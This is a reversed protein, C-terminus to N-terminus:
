FAGTPAGPDHVDQVGYVSTTSLFILRGGREACAQAVRETGNLNIAEVREPNEFSTAADTIAALHVVVDGPDISRSLDVQSVDSQVFEYRNGAPLNFLSPYRQSSLDDILLVRDFVGVPLERIFRSGVHGLAGTVILKM